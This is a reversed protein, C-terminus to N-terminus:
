SIEAFATKYDFHGSPIFGDSPKIYFSDKDYRIIFVEEDILVKTARREVAEQITILQLPDPWFNDM